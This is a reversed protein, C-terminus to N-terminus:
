SNLCKIYEGNYNSDYNAPHEPKFSLQLYFQATETDGEAQAKEFALLYDRKAIKDAYNKAQTKCKEIKVASDQKNNQPQPATAGTEKVEPEPQKNKEQELDNQVNKLQEQLEAIRNSDASKLANDKPLFLVFYYFASFAVILIGLLGGLKSWNDKLWEKM